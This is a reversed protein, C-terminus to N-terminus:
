VLRAARRSDVGAARLVSLVQQATNAWTFQAARERGRRALDARLVDDTLVREIAAAIADADHPNVLLGADGVVEPMSSCNSAIVATGCKMAEALPLGFGEWLSVLALADAGTMLDPLEQDDDLYGLERIRARVPSRAIAAHTEACLWGEGGVIVLGHPLEPRRAVVQEFAQVLRVLNKRPQIRGVYLLYREPLGHKRRLGDMAGLATSPAFDDAVGLPAVTVRGPRLSFRRELDVRTAESIAVIRRGHRLALRTEIRARIRRRRTFDRAFDYFALDLIMPVRPCRCCVPIQPSPAYFVDPPDRRLERALARQTWFAGAPLIRFEAQSADVPFDPRPERDLYIRIRDKGALPVLARLIEACMRGVGAREIDNAARGDFGILM